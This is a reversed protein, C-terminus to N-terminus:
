ELNKHTHRWVRDLKAFDAQALGIRRALESATDGNGAVVAGLYTIAEKEVIPKGDPRDLKVSCRACMLDVKKWNMELGYEQGVEIICQLQKEVEHGHTGLLLTDDAYLLESVRSLPVELGHKDRLQRHVDELIVTMLMVFLYPSLPCGQSIGFAQEHIGSAQGCESVFFQRHSYIEGIMEVFHDPLGFRRLSDLLGDPSISDFAKAWDLALVVVAVVLSYNSTTKTSERV